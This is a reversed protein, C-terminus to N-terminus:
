GKKNEKKEPEKCDAEKSEIQELRERIAALAEHLVDETTYQQYNMGYVVKDNDLYMRSITEQITNQSVGEKFKIAIIGPTKM